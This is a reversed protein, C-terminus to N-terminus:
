IFAHCTSVKTGFNPTLRKISIYNGFFLLSCGLFYPALFIMLLLSCLLCEMKSQGSIWGGSAIDQGVILCSIRLQRTNCIELRGVTLINVSPLSM